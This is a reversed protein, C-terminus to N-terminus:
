KNKKLIEQLKFVSKGSVSTKKRKKKAERSEKKEVEKQIEEFNENM